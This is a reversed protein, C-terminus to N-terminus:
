KTSYRECFYGCFYVQMNIADRAVRLFEAPIGMRVGHEHNLARFDWGRDSSRSDECSNDM